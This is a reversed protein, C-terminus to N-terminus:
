ADVVIDHGANRKAIQKGLAAWYASLLEDCGDVCPTPEWSDHDSNFGKWKVDYATVRLKGPTPAKLNRSKPTRSQHALIAEVEYVPLVGVYDLPLVPVPPPEDARAKYPRLLSVHFVNHLREFGQTLLLRV